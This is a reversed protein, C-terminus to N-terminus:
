LPAFGLVRLTGVGRSRCPSKESSKFGLKVPPDQGVTSYTGLVLVPLYVHLLLLEPFLATAGVPVSCRNPAECYVYSPIVNAGPWFTKAGPWSSGTAWFM